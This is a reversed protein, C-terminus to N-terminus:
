LDVKVAVVNESSFGTVFLWAKKKGDEKKPDIGVLVGTAANRIISGDDQWLLKKEWKEPEDQSPKVYWVVVGERGSPDQATTVINIAKSLGALVFGSADGTADDAYSDVFWSPNDITSDLDVTGKVVITEPKEGLSGLWLNGGVASVVLIEDSTRGHGLGNPNHLKDMVVNADVASGDGSVSAHVVESWAAGPWVDEVMRLRGERYHHDNTVFIEDKTVGYIDNPTRILPHAITHVHRVTDSGLVHHFVEVRSAAKPATDGSPGAQPSSGDRHFVAENPIHNVAFIYVSPNKSSSTTDDDPIVDIGHSIFPGDFNEFALRKSEKTEPDIIHISGRANWAVSADDFFALPPFWKFRTASVDECATFLINAPAYYHLDECHTTDGIRVLDESHTLPTSALPRFVGLKTLVGQTASGYM